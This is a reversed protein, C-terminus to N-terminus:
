PIQDILVRAILSDNRYIMINTYGFSSKAYRSANKHSSQYNPDPAYTWTLVENGDINLKSSPANYCSIAKSKLEGLQHNERSIFNSHHTAQASDLLKYTLEAILSDAIQKNNQHNHQFLNLEKTATYPLYNQYFLFSCFQHHDTAFEIILAQNISDNKLWSSDYSQVSDHLKKNITQNILVDTLLYKDPTIIQANVAFHLCLLCFLKILLKKKLKFM